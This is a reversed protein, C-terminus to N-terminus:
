ISENLNLRAHLHVKVGSPLVPEDKTGNMDTTLSSLYSACFPMESTSMSAGSRRTIVYLIQKLPVHNEVVRKTVGLATDTTMQSPGLHRTPFGLGRLEVTSDRPPDDGLRGDGDGHHFVFVCICVSYVQAARWLCSAPFTSLCARRFPVVCLQLFRIAFLVWRAKPDLLCVLEKAVRRAQTLALVGEEHCAARAPEPADAPASASPLATSLAAAAANSLHTFAVSADPGALTCM